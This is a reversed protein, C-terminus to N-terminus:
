SLFHKNVECVPVEEISKWCWNPKHDKDILRARVGEIFDRRKCCNQSIIYDMELVEKVSCRSFRRLQEWILWATM